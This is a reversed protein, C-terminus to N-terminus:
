APTPAGIQGLLYGSSKSEDILATWTVGFVRDATIVGFQVEDVESVTAKWLYVDEQNDAVDLPHLRLVDANTSGKQGPIKGWGHTVTDRSYGWVFVTQLVVMTKEAMTTSVELSEGQYILDVVMTGYEDVMRERLDPTDNFRVGEMTHGISNGGFTVQCPGTQINSLDGGVQSAM